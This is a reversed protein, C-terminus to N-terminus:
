NEKQTLRILKPKNKLHEMLYGDSIKKLNQSLVVKYNNKSLFLYCKGEIFYYQGSSQVLLGKSPNTVFAYVLTDNKFYYNETRYIDASEHHEVCILNMQKKDVYTYTEHGGIIKNKKDFIEGESIGKIFLGKSDKTGNVHKIYYDILYIKSRDKVSIDRQGFCFFPISILTLVLQRKM